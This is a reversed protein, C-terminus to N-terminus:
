RTAGHARIVDIVATARSALAISLATEGRDTTAHVDAGADLLAKAGIALNNSAMRHLPTYGYTDRAELNAGLRILTATVHQARQSMGAMHLPTAGGTSIENVWEPHEALVAAVAEPGRRLTENMETYGGGTYVPGPRPNHNQYQRGMVPKGEADREIKGGYIGPGVTDRYPDFGEPDTEGSAGYRSAMGPAEPDHTIRVGDARYRDKTVPEGGDAPSRCATTALTLGAAMAGTLLVVNM